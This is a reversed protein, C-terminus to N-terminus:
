QERLKQIKQVFRNRQHESVIDNCVKNDRTISNTLFAWTKTDEWNKDSSGITEVAPTEKLVEQMIPRLYTEFELEYDKFSRFVENLDQSSLLESISGQFLQPETPM